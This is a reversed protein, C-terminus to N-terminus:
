KVEDVSEAMRDDFNARLVILPNFKERPRSTLLSVSPRVVTASLNVADFDLEERERYRVKPESETPEDALATMPVLLLAFLRKM